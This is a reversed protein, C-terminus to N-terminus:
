IPNETFFQYSADTMILWENGHGCRGTLQCMCMRAHQKLAAVVMERDGRLQQSAYKLAWGDQEVAARVVERDGRVQQSAHKLACHM